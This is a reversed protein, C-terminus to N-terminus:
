RGPRSDSAASGQPDGLLGRVAQVDDIVVAVEREHVGGRDREEAVFVLRLQQSSVAVSRRV